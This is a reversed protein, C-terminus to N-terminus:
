PVVVIVVILDSLLAVHVGCHVGGRARGHIGGRVRGHVSRRRGVVAAQSQRSMGIDTLRVLMELVHPASPIIQRATRM